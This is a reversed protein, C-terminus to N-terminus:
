LRPQAPPEVYPLEVIRQEAVPGQRQLRESLDDAVVDLATQSLSPCCAPLCYSLRKKKGSASTPIRGEDETRDSSARDRDSRSDAGAHPQQGRLLRLGQRR